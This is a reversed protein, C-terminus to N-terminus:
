LIKGLVKAIREAMLKYGASNPHTTDAMLSPDGAIGDLVNWVVEADYQESIKRFGDEYKKTKQPFKIHVLVAASGTQRIQGVITDLNSITEDVDAGALFDNGSLEVVVLSPNKRIVDTQLRSLATETTDGSVGANIYNALGLEQAVFTPFDEGQAAGVGATLSDGFFIVPGERTIKEASGGKAFLYWFGFAGVLIILLVAYPRTM